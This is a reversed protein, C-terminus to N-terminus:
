KLKNLCNNVFDNHKVNILNLDLKSVKAIM